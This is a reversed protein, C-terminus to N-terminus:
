DARGFLPDTISLGAEGQLQNYLYFVILAAGLMSLNKMFMAMQTTRMQEERENWFAHMIPTIVLLFAVILLAGLDAWVGLAVMLGGGLALAGTLPVGIEPAPSNYSRAYEVGQRYGVFHAMIASSVFVLAFLVRGILFLAEM